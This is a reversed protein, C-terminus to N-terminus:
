LDLKTTSMRGEERLFDAKLAEFKASLLTILPSFEGQQGKSPCVSRKKAPRFCVDCRGNECIRARSRLAPGILLVLQRRRWRLLM